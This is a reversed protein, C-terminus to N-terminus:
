SDSERRPFGLGETVSADNRRKDRRRQISNTATAKLNEMLGSADNRLQNLIDQIRHLVQDFEKRIAASDANSHQPVISVVIENQRVDARPPNMSFTSPRCFFVDRDGKFPVFFRFENRKVTHSGSDSFAERYRSNVEMKIEREDVTIEDNDLVPVNIQHATTLRDALSELNADNLDQDGLSEVSAALAKPANRIAANFDFKTFLIENDRM